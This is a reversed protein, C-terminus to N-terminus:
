SGGATFSFDGQTSHTDASVARWHVQYRGPTLQKLGIRMTNGSIQPKGEDVRAGKADTVQATSFAPELNQTFTLMVEHPANAVTSGAIPTTHDLAAHAHAAGLGLVALLLSLITIRM